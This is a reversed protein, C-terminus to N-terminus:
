RTEVYVDRKIACVPYGTESNRAHVDRALAPIALRFKAAINSAV